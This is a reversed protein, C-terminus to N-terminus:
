RCAEDVLGIERQCLRAVADGELKAVIVERHAVPEGRQRLLNAGGAVAKGVREAEGADIKRAIRCAIDADEGTLGEGARTIVEEEFHRGFRMEDMVGAELIEAVGAGANEAVESVPMELRQ